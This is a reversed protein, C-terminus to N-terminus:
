KGKKGNASGALAPRELVSVIRFRSDPNNPNEKSVRFFYPFADPEVFFAKSEKGQASFLEFVDNGDELLLNALRLRMGLLTKEDITKGIVGLKRAYCEVSRNGLAAGLITGQPNLNKQEM